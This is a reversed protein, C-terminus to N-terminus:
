GSMMGVLASIVIPNLQRVRKGGAGVFEAGELWKV